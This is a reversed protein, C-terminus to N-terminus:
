KRDKLNRSSGKNEMLVFAVVQPFPGNRFSAFKRATCKSYWSCNLSKRMCITNKSPPKSTSCHVLSLFYHHQSIFIANVLANSQTDSPFHTLLASQHANRHIVRNHPSIHPALYEFTDTSHKYDVCSDFLHQVCLNCLRNHSLKYSLSGCKSKEYHYSTVHKIYRARLIRAEEPLPM